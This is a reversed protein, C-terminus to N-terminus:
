KRGTNAPRRLECCNDQSCQPICPDIKIPTHSDTKYTHKQNGPSKKLFVFFCIDKLSIESGQINQAM